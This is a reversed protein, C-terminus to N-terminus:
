QEMAALEALGTLFDDQPPSPPPQPKGAAAATEQDFDTAWESMDDLMANSISNVIITPNEVSYQKLIGIKSTSIDDFLQETAFAAPNDSNMVVSYDIFKSKDEGTTPFTSYYSELLEEEEEENVDYTYLKSLISLLTKIQNKLNESTEEFHKTMESYYKSFETRDNLQDHYTSNVPDKGDIINRWLDKTGVSPAKFKVIQREENKIDFRLRLEM